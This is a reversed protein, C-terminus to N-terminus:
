QSKSKSGVVERREKHQNLPNPHVVLLFSVELCKRAEVRRMRRRCFRCALLQPSTSVDISPACLDVM